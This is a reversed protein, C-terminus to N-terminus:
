RRSRALKSKGAPNVKGRLVWSTLLKQVQARTTEGLATSIVLERIKASDTGNGFTDVWHDLENPGTQAPAEQIIRVGLRDSENIASFIPNGDRYPTGDAHKPTLWPSRWSDITAAQQLVEQWLEEWFAQAAAYQRADTLFKPYLVQSM